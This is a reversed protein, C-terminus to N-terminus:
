SASTASPTKPEPARETLMTEFLQITQTMQRDDLFHSRVQRRAAQGLRDALYQDGLLRELALAFADLDRPEVLLGNLGDTIQDQIGGVASAVMPRAKWMAEAVTLGFGEAVSKQVVVSAHRQIANIITANQALDDMPVSVLSIHRRINGPLENWYALCEAQVQAGEPDDSVGTVAPAVLMLHVDGPLRARAFGVMVGPMDKLRDWRSVQVVVRADPAPPPAGQVVPSPTAGDASLLGNNTLIRLRQRPPIPRNKPALPDISPPIIWLREPPIWPPVYQLRSFVFADASGIYPRLFDWAAVSQENQADIGIHSRWAVRLGARQLPGVLGAPQPDHLLVLDRPNVLRLMDEANLDLVREYPAHSAPGLAAPDGTGHIANHLRKTIAFFESNGDLTLWRTRIGGALAYGLQPYLMEAVGGGAATANVHWIARGAFAGAGITVTERFRAAQEKPLISALTGLPRQTLNVEHM